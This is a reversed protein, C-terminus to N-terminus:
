IEPENEDELDEEFDDITGVTYERAEEKAKYFKKVNEPMPKKQYRDPISMWNKDEQSLPIDEMEVIRTQGFRLPEEYRGPRDIKTRTKLGSVKFGNDKLFTRFENYTSGRQGLKKKIHAKQRIIHTPSCNYKHAIKVQSTNKCVEALIASQFPTLEPNSLKFGLERNFDFPDPEKPPQSTPTKHSPGKLGMPQGMRDTTYIANSSAIDNYVTSNNLTNHTKYESILVKCQPCIAKCTIIQKGARDVSVSDTFETTTYVKKCTKCIFQKSIM